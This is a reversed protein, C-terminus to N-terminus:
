LQPRPGPLSEFTRDRQMLGFGRVYSDLFSTTRAFPPNALPRWLWEDAGTRMLLGDSDHLEARFGPSVRRDNEGALFMSTLPALGFKVGAQRPFLTAQVEM